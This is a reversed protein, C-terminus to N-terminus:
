FRSRELRGKLADGRDRCRERGGGERRVSVPSFSKFARVCEVGECVFWFHAPREM